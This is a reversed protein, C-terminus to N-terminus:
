DGNKFHFFKIEGRIILEQNNKVKYGLSVFYLKM